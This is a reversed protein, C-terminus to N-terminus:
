PNVKRAQEIARAQDEIQDFIKQYIGAPLLAEFDESWVPAAARHPEGTDEDAHELDRWDLFQWDIHLHGLVRIPEGTRRDYDDVLDALFAARCTHTEEAGMVRVTIEFPAAGSVSGEVNLMPDAIRPAPTYISVAPDLAAALDVGVTPALMEVPPQPAARLRLAIEDIIYSPTM